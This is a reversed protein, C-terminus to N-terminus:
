HSNEIMAKFHGNRIVVDPRLMSADELSLDDFTGELLGNGAFSRVQVKGFGLWEQGEANVYVFGVTAMAMLPDTWRGIVSSHPLDTPYEQQELNIFFFTIAFTEIAGPSAKAWVTSIVDSFRNENPPLHVFRKHESGVDFTVLGRSQATDSVAVVIGDGAPGVSAFVDNENCVTSFTVLLIGVAWTPRFVVAQRCEDLAKM